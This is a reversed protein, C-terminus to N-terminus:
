NRKDSNRFIREHRKKRTRDNYCYGRTIKQMTQPLEMPEKHYSDKPSVSVTPAYIRYQRGTRDSCVFPIDNAQRQREPPILRKKIVNIIGM